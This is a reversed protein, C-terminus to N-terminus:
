LKETECTWGREIYLVICQKDDEELIDNVREINWLNLRKSIYWKDNKQKVLGNGKL